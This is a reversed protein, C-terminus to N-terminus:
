KLFAEFEAKLGAPLAAPRADETICALRLSISVLKEGERYVDQAMQISAGKVQSITTKIELVDDLRAPKHYDIECHKVAFGIPDDGQLLSRIPYGLLCLLADRAAEALRLYNAYYVIGAADTDGYIVRAPYLHAKGAIHGYAPHLGDLTTM